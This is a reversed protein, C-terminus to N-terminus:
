IYRPLYDTSKSVLISKRYLDLEVVVVGDEYLERSLWSKVAEQCLVQWHSADRVRDHNHSKCFHRKWLVQKVVVEVECVSSPCCWEM